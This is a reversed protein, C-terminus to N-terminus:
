FLIRRKSEMRVGNGKIRMKKSFKNSVSKKKFCAKVRQFGANGGVWERGGREALTVKV